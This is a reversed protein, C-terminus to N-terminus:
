SSKTAISKYLSCGADATIANPFQMYKFKLNRNRPQEFEKLTKFVAFRTLEDMIMKNNAPDPLKEPLPLITPLQSSHVVWGKLFDALQVTVTETAPKKDLTWQVLVIAGETTRGSMQYINGEQLGREKCYTGIAFGRKKLLVSTDDIQELTKVGAYDIPENEEKCAETSLSGTPVAEWKLLNLGHIDSCESRLCNVFTFIVEDQDKYIRKEAGSGQKNMM